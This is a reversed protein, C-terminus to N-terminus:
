FDQSEAADARNRRRYARRIERYLQKSIILKSLIVLLQLITGLLIVIVETKQFIQRRAANLKESLGSTDTVSSDTSASMVLTFPRAEYVAMAMLEEKYRNREVLSPFRAICLENKYLLTLLRRDMSLGYETAESAPSKALMALPAASNTQPNFESSDRGASQSPASPPTLPRDARQFDSPHCSLAVWGYELRPGPRARADETAAPPAGTDEADASVRKLQSTLYRHLLESDRFEVKQRCRADLDLVRACHQERQRHFYADVRAHATRPGPGTALNKPAKLENCWLSCDPGISASCDIENGTRKFLKPNRLVSALNNNCFAAHRQKPDIFYEEYCRVVDWDDANFNSALGYKNQLETIQQRENEAALDAGLRADKQSIKQEPLRAKAAEAERRLCREYGSWIEGKNWRKFDKPQEHQAQADAFVPQQPTESPSPPIDGLQDLKRIMNKRIGSSEYVAFLQNIPEEYLIVDLALSNILVSIFISVIRLYYAITGKPKFRTAAWLLVILMTGAYISIVIDRLEFFHVGAVGRLAWATVLLLLFIGLFYIVKVLRDHRATNGDEDDAPLEKGFNARFLSVEAMAFALSFLATIIFTVLSAAPFQYNLVEQKFCLAVTQIREFPNLSTTTCVSKASDEERVFYFVTLTVFLSPLISLLQIGLRKYADWIEALRRAPKRSVPVAGFLSQVMSIARSFPFFLGALLKVANFLVIVVIIFLIIERVSVEASLNYHYKLYNNLFGDFLNFWILLEVLFLVAILLYYIFVEQAAASFPRADPNASGSASTSEADAADAEHTADAEDAAPQQQRQDPDLESQAGREGTSLGRREPSFIQRLGERLVEFYPFLPEEGRCKQPGAVNEVNKRAVM